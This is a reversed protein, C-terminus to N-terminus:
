ALAGEISTLHAAYVVALAAGEASGFEDVGLSAETADAIVVRKPIPPTLVTLERAVAANRLEEFWQRGGLTQEEHHNVIIGAVRLDANYYTRVSDITELLKSLGDLSWKKTHTVVVVGHAATLSNVTLQDLSPACDVLVLDYDELVPALANRLRAERGAGAITLEDRVAELTTGSTPVVDLGPWVGPVIVDRMADTTHSSLVDALGAQDDPVSDRAANSTLNGQPDNDVVLVRRGALVAARALQFTTTSKGVGGKQNCFALIQATM